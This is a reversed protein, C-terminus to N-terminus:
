KRRRKDRCCGGRVKVPKPKKPKRKSSAPGTGSSTGPGTGSDTGPGHGSDQVPGKGPGAPDDQPTKQFCVRVKYGIKVPMSEINIWDVGKKPVISNILQIHEYGRGSIRILDGKDIKGSPKVGAHDSKPPNIIQAIEGIPIWEGTCQHKAKAMIREM